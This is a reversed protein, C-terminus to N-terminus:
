FVRADDARWSLGCADGAAYRGPRGAVQIRLTEGSTLACDLYSLNGLYAVSVVRAGVPLEGAPGIEIAEPRIALTASAREGTDAGAPLSVGGDTVFAGGRLRGALMNMAGMFGAVFVDAPSGYVEGPTGIQVIRAARMVAIRDSM